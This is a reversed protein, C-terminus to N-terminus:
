IPISASTPQTWGNAVAVAAAQTRSKVNLKTLISSVHHGVTKESIFLSEAIGANSLGNAMLELVEQERRTLGGPNERTSPRVGRPIHTIGRRQLERRLGRIVGDAGMTSLEKFVRDLDAGPAMARVIAAEVPRDREEWRSVAEEFRGQLELGPAGGVEGEPLGLGLRNAWFALGTAASGSMGPISLIAEYRDAAAEMPIVGVWAAEMLMIGVALHTFVETSQELRSRVEDIKELVGPDGRRMRLTAAVVLAEMETSLCTRQGAVIELGRDADDWRGTVVDINALTTTAAVYWADMENLTSYRQCERYWERAENSRGARFSLGGLNNYARATAEGGRNAVGLRAAEEVVALGDSDGLLCRATGASTAAQVELHTTGVLRALSVAEEAVALSQVVDGAALVSQALVTLALVLEESPDDARLTEIAKEAESRATEWVNLRSEFFSVWAQARAVEGATTALDLRRRSFEVATEFDNILCHERAGDLLSALLTARDMVDGLRLANAFHFAAQRHAGARAAASGAELSYRVAQESDGAGLSHHALRSIDPANSATEKHFKLLRQHLRTRTAAPMGEIVSRRILEHRCVVRGNDIQVLGREIALNLSAEDTPAVDPVARLSVGDPSLAVTYLLSLADEPLRQASALVVNQITPPLEQGPHRLVEEVYFPNGHTLEHIVRGDVGAQGGAMEVIGAISLSPLELRIAEPGLDAVVLRLPPLLALEEPRFTVILTSSTAEIRRGLYRILGLTSEDAWHADEIVLVLRDNKVLDLMGAYVAPRGTGARVDARLDEPLEDLLEFLPSFAAPIGVPECAAKLVRFRYDVGALLHDVLSTKGHGAEGSLLVVKGSQSSGELAEKLAAIQADREVLPRRTTTISGIMDM